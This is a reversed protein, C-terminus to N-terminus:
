TTAAVGKELLTLLLRAFKDDSPRVTPILAEGGKGTHEIAALKPHVYPAASKAADLRIDQPNAPSRMVSLMFDLPTQGSKAIAEAKAATAKNPTGKKRGGTKARKQKTGVTSVADGSSQKEPDM